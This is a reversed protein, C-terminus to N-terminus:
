AASEDLESDFFRSSRVPLHLSCPTNQVFTGKKKPVAAPRSCSSERRASEALGQTRCVGEQAGSRSAASRRHLPPNLLARRPTARQSRQLHWNTPTKAPWREGQERREQSKKMTRPTAATRRKRTHTHTHTAYARIRGVGMEAQMHNPNTPNREDHARRSRGHQALLAHMQMPAELGALTLHAEHAHMLFPSGSQSEAPGTDSCSKQRDMPAEPQSSEAGDGREEEVQQWESDGTSSGNPHAAVCCARALTTVGLYPEARM